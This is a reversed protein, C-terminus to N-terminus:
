NLLNMATVSIMYFWEIPMPISNFQSNCCNLRNCWIFIARVNDIHNRQFCRFMSYLSCICIPSLNYLLSVYWLRYKLHQKEWGNLCVSMKSRIYIWRWTSYMLDHNICLTDTEIFIAISRFLTYYIKICGIYGIWTCTGLNISMVLYQRCLNSLSFQFM